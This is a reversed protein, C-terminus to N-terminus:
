FIFHFFYVIKRVIKYKTTFIFKKINSINNLAFHLISFIFQNKGLSSDIFIISINNKMDKFVNAAAFHTKGGGANIIFRKHKNNDLCLEKIYNAFDHVNIISNHANMDPYRANFHNLIIKCNSIDMRIDNFQINDQKKSQIKDIYQNLSDQDHM